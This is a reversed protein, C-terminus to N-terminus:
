EIRIVKTDEPHEKRYEDLLTMTRDLLEQSYLEGVLNNRTKEAADFIFQVEEDKINEDTRYVQIGADLLIKMCKEDEKRAAEEIRGHSQRALDLIINRSQPSIKDWIKKSIVMAGLINSSPYENIYKFRTYWQFAVAMYPTASACDILNTSLSTAVDSVSLSIPSIGMAKYMERGIPEGELTWWKQQRAVELSSLPVKSFVYLFGIDGWGIVVFGKEEFLKEMTPRLRERVYAVERHNRFVFPIETVRVEPVIEGLGSGSFAGGHLQGLKIKRIVDKEDGQVGGWYIKFGVEGDTKIRIEEALKEYINVLNSGKPALTAMKITIKAQEAATAGPCFLALAILAALFMRGYDKM